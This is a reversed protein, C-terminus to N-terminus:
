AHLPQKDTERQVLLKEKRRRRRRRNGHSWISFQEEKKPTLAPLYDPPNEELWGHKNPITSDKCTVSLWYIRGGRDPDLSHKHSNDTPFTRSLLVGGREEYIAGKDTWM